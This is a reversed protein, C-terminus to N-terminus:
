KNEYVKGSVVTM